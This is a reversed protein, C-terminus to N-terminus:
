CFYSLNRWLLGESRGPCDSFIILRATEQYKNQHKEEAVPSTKTGSGLHRTVAQILADYSASSTGSILNQLEYKSKTLHKM